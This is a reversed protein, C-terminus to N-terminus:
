EVGRLTDVVAQGDLGKADLDEAYADGGSLPNGDDCTTGVTTTGGIVGLCDILQGACQCSANYVDNTTCANNDNCASGVTAPGGIVGLCDPAAQGSATGFAGLSM